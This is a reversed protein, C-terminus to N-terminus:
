LRTIDDPVPVGKSPAATGPENRWLVRKRKSERLLAAPSSVIEQFSLACKEPLDKGSEPICTLIPIDDHVM